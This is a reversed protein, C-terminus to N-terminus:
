KLRGLFRTFLGLRFYRVLFRECALHVTRYKNLHYYNSLERVRRTTNKKEKKKRFSVKEPIVAGKQAAAM